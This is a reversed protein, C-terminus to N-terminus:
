FSLLYISDPGIYILKSKLLADRGFLGDIGQSSFDCGIVPMSEFKHSDGEIGTFM